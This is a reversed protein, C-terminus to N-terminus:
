ESESLPPTGGVVGIDMSPIGEGLNIINLPQAWKTKYDESIDIELEVTRPKPMVYSSLKLLLELAKAPDDKAVEDLWKQINPQNKELVSHFKGRIAKLQIDEGRKSKKGAASGTQSNFGM